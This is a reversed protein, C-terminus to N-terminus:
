HGAAMATLVSAVVADSVADANHCTGQSGPFIATCSAAATANVAAGLNLACNRAQAYANVLDLCAHQSMCLRTAQANSGAVLDTSLIIKMNPSGLECEVLKTAENEDPPCVPPLPEFPPKGKVGLPPQSAPPAGDANPANTAPVNAAVLTAGAVSSNFSFRDGCNQFLLMMSFTSLGLVAFRISSKTM